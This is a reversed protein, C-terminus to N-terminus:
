AHSDEVIGQVAAIVAKTQPLTLFSFFTVSYTGDAERHINFQKPIVPLEERQLRVLAEAKERKEKDTALVIEAKANLERIKDFVKQLDVDTTPVTCVVRNYVTVDCRLRVKVDPSFLAASWRPRDSELSVQVKEYTFEFWKENITGDPFAEALQDFIWKKIIAHQEEHPKM